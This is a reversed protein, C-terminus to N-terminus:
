TLTCLTQSNKMFSGKIVDHWSVAGTPVTNRFIMLQKNKEIPIYILTDDTILLLGIMM